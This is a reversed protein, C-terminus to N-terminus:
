KLSDYIDKFDNYADNLYKDHYSCFYSGSKRPSSCVFKNGKKFKCKLVSTSSTNTKSAYDYAYDNSGCGALCVVMIVLVALACYIKKM